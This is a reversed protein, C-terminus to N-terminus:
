NSTVTITLLLIHLGVPGPSEDGDPFRKNAQVYEEKVTIKILSKLMKYRMVNYSSGCQVSCVGLALQYHM